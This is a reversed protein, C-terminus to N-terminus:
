EWTNYSKVISALKSYIGVFDVVPYQTLNIDFLLGNDNTSLEIAGEAFNSYTIQFHEMQANLM